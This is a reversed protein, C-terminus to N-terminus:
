KRRNLTYSFNEDGVFLRADKDLFFLVNEDGVLFSLTENTKELDLRYIVAVPDYQIGRVIKWTGKVAEPRNLTSELAYTTPENTSADRYLTIKWKLKFCESGRQLNYQKAFDQCPTRGEFITEPGTDEPPSIARVPLVGSRKERADRASLTYSWGGNGVMLKDDDTLVHYLDENLRVLTLVKSDIQLKLRPPQGNKTDAASYKGAFAMKEGGNKFGSTNPQAEGFNINLDFTKKGVDNLTLEWRIFDVPKGPAISFISRIADGCPTSGVLVTKPSVTMDAAACANAFLLCAALGLLSLKKNRM